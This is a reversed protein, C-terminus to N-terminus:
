TRRDIQGRTYRHIREYAVLDGHADLSVRYSALVSTTDPIRELELVEVDAQWGDETPKLASVSEPTRGLLEALQGAAHRMAQPAPIRRGSGARPEDGRPRRAKASARPEAPDAAARKRPRAEGENGSAM